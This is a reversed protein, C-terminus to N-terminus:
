PQQTTLWHQLDQPTKLDLFADTLAQRSPPSLQRIQQTLPESLPGLHRDLLRLLILLEGEQRGSQLGAQRGEQLIEQYTVSERMIDRRLIRSTIDQNLVLGALIYATGTLNSQQRRDPLQDIKQAVQRLTAIPDSTQSLVAFPLLGPTNLFRDPPHEWLRLINYQATLNPLIFQNNHVLPSTSPKLYIVYQHLHKNPYRRYIRLCYDAMRFGMAEDPRTQFEIQLVTDENQMLILADARIPELSLESPSLEQFPTPTGLLWTAFDASFQEVLFKCTLDFM